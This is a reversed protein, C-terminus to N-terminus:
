QYTSLAFFNLTYVLVTALAIIVVGIIAAIVTKKGAEPNGNIYQIGGIVLMIVIVGGAIPGLYGQTDAILQSFADLITGLKTTNTGGGGQAGQALAPAVGLLNSLWEGM